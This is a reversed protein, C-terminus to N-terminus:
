SKSFYTVRDVNQKISFIAEMVVFQSDPFLKSLRASERCAEDYERHLKKSNRDASPNYVIYFTRPSLLKNKRTLAGM